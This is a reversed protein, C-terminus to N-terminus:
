GKPGAEAKSNWGPVTMHLRHNQWVQKLWDRHRYILGGIVCPTVLLALFPGGSLNLKAWNLGVLLGMLLVFLLVGVALAWVATNPDGKWLIRWLILGLVAGGALILVEKRHGCLIYIVTVVLADLLYVKKRKTFRIRKCWSLFLRCARATRYYGRRIAPLLDYEWSAMLLCFVGFILLLGQWGLAVIGSDLLLWAGQFHTFLWVIGLGALLVSLLFFIGRFVKKISQKAKM